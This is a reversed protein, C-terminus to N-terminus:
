QKPEQTTADALVAARYAAAAAARRFSELVGEPAGERYAAAADRYAAAAADRYQELTTPENM